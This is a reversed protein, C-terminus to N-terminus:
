DVEEAGRSNAHTRNRKKALLWWEGAALVVGMKGGGSDAVLLGWPPGFLGWARNERIRYHQTHQSNGAGRSAM